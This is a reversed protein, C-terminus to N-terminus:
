NNIHMSTNLLNFFAFPKDGNGSLGHLSHVLFCKQFYNECAFVLDEAGVCAM